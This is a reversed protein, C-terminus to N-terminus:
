TALNQVFTGHIAYFVADTDQMEGDYLNLTPTWIHESTLHVKNIHQFRRLNLCDFTEDYNDPCDKETCYGSWSLRHDVWEIDLVANMHFTESSLSATKLSPGVKKGCIQYYAIKETLFSINM